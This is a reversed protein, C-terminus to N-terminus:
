PAISVISFSFVNLDDNDLDIKLSKELDGYFLYDEGWTTDAPDLCFLVPYSGGRQYMFKRIQHIETATIWPWSGQFAPCIVTPDIVRRGSRTYRRESRDDILVSAGVEVNSAPQITEMFLLRWLQTGGTSGTGNQIVVRWFRETRPTGYQTFFKKNTSSRNSSLGGALPGVTSAIPTSATRHASTAFSYIAVTWGTLDLGLVSVAGISPTLSTIDIDFYFYGTNAVGTWQAVLGPEDNLVNAAPYTNTGGTQGSAALTCDYPIGLLANSM